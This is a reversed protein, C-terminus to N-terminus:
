DVGRPRREIEVRWIRITATKVIIVPLVGAPVCGLVGAPLGGASQSTVEQAASRSTVEQAASRSTVEWCEPQYVGWYEPQYVGQCEPQFGVLAGASVRGASQSSVGRATALLCVLLGAPIRNLPFWWGSQM